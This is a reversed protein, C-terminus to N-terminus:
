RVMVRAVTGPVRSSISYVHSEIFANDTEVHTKSKVWLRMGFICAGVALLILVIGAHKRKSGYKGPTPAENGPATGATTHEETM